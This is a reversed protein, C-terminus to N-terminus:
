AEGTLLVTKPMAYLVEAGQPTVLVVDEIRVGGQGPLYIGPEVTLLMGPQLTTTDRPSFRPDEHVEIGIAHGTNHCFYDSFGAETIVRRAADDVQQCRVGPRIASIAALQAQLVIQYVNFLPHSEASVGEGNVLLTRTMDSCYGQYLAGFDLTVFEGAAVIKDSAKGHPLAGRWGSAVITDFSAKEAGQQRMFWELEAAIERESMGAQIFRRIHEAGRDAIGCALRIKEVEEPTKIQRLVDPTASVLKANLESQWRHATEWSVQQGEFGLTQLQEDAIIQRAITTLKHTADLLHLQYGQTRAEVDAYYRSDVLIHASERSILVYGSGTSIGLHPQKNQRSSLLVADLQQAKLWDRLSFRRDIITALGLGIPPIVIAISRATVPLVHDTTFSFAVFGAAKNIPGGLDIATAAAIGMAYMLAGKEGAATLVTRIGGNIWGGFPTIVYYMALMVFIASLIPLLFTTKFALLFDPLQIKQNMWKVLYGAVISIILAGIFTSPVPSSTAWQMTSPDFNLLQTPQTSMLGGIFGAPFALKGGISNAVFAAFMPIAFGFLVGGFSQSLWAFKLLSLDFGSFKGSNLADMIGIDAPIKLWSYAILQSFALIVGGMILTPVMRSIGSMVHQPLEGWFSSKSAQPNKVAAAAGSAGPVVTASRKKIAM